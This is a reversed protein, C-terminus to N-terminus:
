IEWKHQYDIIAPASPLPNNKNELSIIMEGGNLMALIEGNISFSKKGTEPMLGILLTKSGKKVWLTCANAKDTHQHTTATIFIQQKSLDTDIDWGLSANATQNLLTVSLLLSLSAFGSLAYRWSTLWAKFVGTKHPKIQRNINKWIIQASEKELPAQVNLRSLHLQWQQLARKFAVTKKIAQKEETSLLGLAYQFALFNDDMM